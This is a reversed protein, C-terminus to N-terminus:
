TQIDHQTRRTKRFDKNSLIDDVCFGDIYRDHVTGYKLGRKRSWQMLTKTEGEITIQINGRRNANQEFITVWKCNSPEYNGDNNIRDISMGDPCEGMDKLFNEFSNLWRECITIGRGGYNYYAADKENYCRGKMNAWVTYEKTKTKGHTIKPNAGARERRFCGCSVTSGRLLMQSRVISTHGCDCLCEWFVIGTSMSEARKIVLLRGFRQGTLDKKLKPHKKNEAACM